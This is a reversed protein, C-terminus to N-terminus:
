AKVRMEFCILFVYRPEESGYGHGRAESELQLQLQQSEVNAPTSWSGGRGGEIIAKLREFNYQVFQRFHEVFHAFNYEDELSSNPEELATVLSRVRQIYSQRHWEGDDSRDLNIFPIRKTEVDIDQHDRILDRLPTSETCFIKAVERIKADLDSAESKQLTFILLQTRIDIVMELIQQSQDGCDEPGGYFVQPFWRDWSQLFPLAEKRQITLIEDLLIAFNTACIKKFAQEGDPSGASRGMFDLVYSPHIVTDHDNELFFRRNTELKELEFSREDEWEEFEGREDPSLDTSLGMLPFKYNSVHDYFNKTQEWLLSLQQLAKKKKWAPIAKAESGSTSTGRAPTRFQGAGGLTEHQTLAGLDSTGLHRDALECRAISHISKSPLEPISTQTDIDSSAQTQSGAALSPGFSQSSRDTRRLGRQAIKGLHYQPTPSNELNPDIFEQGEPIAVQYQQHQLRTNRRVPSPETQKVEAVRTAKPPRGRARGTPGAM